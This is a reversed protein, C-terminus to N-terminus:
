RYPWILVCTARIDYASQRDGVLRDLRIISCIHGEIQFCTLLPVVAERRSSSSSSSPWSFCLNLPLDDIKGVRRVKIHIIM